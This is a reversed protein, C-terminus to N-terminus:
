SDFILNRVSTKELDCATAPSYNSSSVGLMLMTVLRFFRFVIIQKLNTKKM